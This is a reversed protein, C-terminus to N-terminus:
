TNEVSPRFFILINCNHFNYCNVSARTLVSVRHSHDVLKKFSYSTGVLTNFGLHNVDVAQVIRAATTTESAFADVIPVFVKFTYIVFSTLVSSLVRTSTILFLKLM